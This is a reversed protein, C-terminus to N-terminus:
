TQKWADACAQLSSPCGVTEMARVLSVIESYVRAKCASLIAEYEGASAAASAAGERGQTALEKRAKFAVPAVFQARSKDEALRPGHLAGLQDPVLMAYGKLFSRADKVAAISLKVSCSSSSSSSSPLDPSTSGCLTRCERALEELRLISAANAAEHLEDVMDCAVSVCAALAPSEGRKALRAIERKEAAVYGIRCAELAPFMTQVLAAWRDAARPGDTAGTSRKGAPERSSRGYEVVAGLVRECAAAADKVFGIAAIAADSVRQARRSDPDTKQQQLDRYAYAMAAYARGQLALAAKKDVRAARSVDPVPLGTSALWQKVRGGSGSPDDAFTKFWTGNCIAAIEIFRSDLVTEGDLPPQKLQPTSSVSVESKAAPALIPARASAAAMAEEVDFSNNDDGGDARPPAGRWGAWEDDYAARIGDLADSGLSSGEALLAESLASPPDGTYGLSGTVPVVAGPGGAPGIRLADRWMSDVDAICEEAARRAASAVALREACAAAVDGSEWEDASLPELGSTVAPVLLAACRECRDRSLSWFASVDDRKRLWLLWNAYEIGIALAEQSPPMKSAISIAGGRATTQLALAASEASDSSQLRRGPKAGPASAPAALKDLVTSWNRDLAEYVCGLSRGGDATSKTRKGCAIPADPDPSTALAAELLAIKAAMFESYAAVRADSEKDRARRKEAASDFGAKAKKMAKIESAPDCSLPLAGCAESIALRRVAEPKM